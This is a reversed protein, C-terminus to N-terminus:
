GALHLAWALAALAGASTAARVGNWTVWSEEFAARVAAPDEVAAPDGAADLANNLPVNVVGTVVLCVAYLVLAAGIWPRPAGGWQLVLAAVILGLSGGFVVAFVPNLIAANIQQMTEILTRDGARRLGPMVAISFAVFLGASLGTTVTAALLILDALM